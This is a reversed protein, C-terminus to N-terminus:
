SSIVAMFTNRNGDQGELNIMINNDDIFRSGILNISIQEKEINEIPGFNPTFTFASTVMTNTNCAYVSVGLNYSTITLDNTRTYKKYLTVTRPDDASLYGYANYNSTVGDIITDGGIGYDSTAFRSVTFINSGDGFDYDIREIPFSGAITASTWTSLITNYSDIIANGYQVHIDPLIEQVYVYNERIFGSCNTVYSSYPASIIPMLTVTYWGPMVFTHTGESTLPDHWNMWNGIPLNNASIDSSLLNVYPDSYDWMVASIPLSRATVSGNFNLKLYPAYGSLINNSVYANTYSITTDDSFNSPVTSALNYWSFSGGPCVELVRIERTASVKFNTNMVNYDTIGASINWSETGTNSSKVYLTSYYTGPGIYLHNFFNPRETTCDDANNITANNKSSLLEHTGLGFQSYFVDRNTGFYSETDGYSLSWYSLPWTRTISCDTFECSLPDYGILVRNENGEDELTYEIPFDYEGATLGWDTLYTQRITSTDFGNTYFKATPWREWVQASVINSMIITSSTETDYANKSPTLIVYPKYCIQKTTNPYGAIRHLPKGNISPDNYTYNATLTTTTYSQQNINLSGFDNTLNDFNYTLNNFEFSGIDTITTTLIVNFNDYGSTYTYNTDNLNQNDWFYGDCNAPNSNVKLIKLNITPYTLEPHTYDPFSDVYYINPINKGNLWLLGTNDSNYETSTGIGGINNFLTQTNGNPFIRIGITNFNSEVWLKATSVQNSLTTDNICKGNSKLRYDTSEFLTSTSVDKTNTYGNRTLAYEIYQNNYPAGYIYNDTICIYEEINNLSDIKPWTQNYYAISTNDTTNYYPIKGLVQTSGIGSKIVWIANESDCAVHRPETWPTTLIGTLVNSNINTTYPIMGVQNEITNTQFINYNVETSDGEKGKYSTCLGRQSKSILPLNESNSPDGILSSTRTTYGKPYIDNYTGALLSVGWWGSRLSSNSTIPKYLGSETTNTSPYTNNVGKYANTIDLNTSSYIYGIDQLFHNNYYITDTVNYSGSRKHDNDCNGTITKKLLYSYASGRGGESCNSPEWYIYGVERSTQAYYYYDIPVHGNCYVKGDPATTIGLINITNSNTETRCGFNTRDIKTTLGTVLNCEAIYDCNVNVHAIIQNSSNKFLTLGNNGNPIHCGSNGLSNIKTMIGTNVNVKYLYDNYGAIILDGTDPNVRIGTINYIPSTINHIIKGSRGDLCYIKNTNDTGWVNFFRNNTIDFELDISICLINSLTNNFWVLDGENYLVNWKVQTITSRCAIGNTHATYIFPTKNFSIVSNNSSDQQNITVIKYFIRRKTKILDNVIDNGGSDIWRGNTLSFGSDTHLVIGTTSNKLNDVFIKSFKNTITTVLKWKPENKGVNDYFVPNTNLGGDAESLPYTKEIYRYIKYSHIQTYDDTIPITFDTPVEWQLTIEPNTYNIDILRTISTFLARKYNIIAM